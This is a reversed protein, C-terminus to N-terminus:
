VNQGLETGVIEECVIVIIEFGITYNKFVYIKMVLLPLVWLSVANLYNMKLFTLQKQITEVKFLMSLLVGLFFRSIYFLGIYGLVQTYGLIGDSIIM